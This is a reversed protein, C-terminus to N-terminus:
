GDGRRFISRGRSFTEVVEIAAIEAPAATLPNAAVVVLDALKGVELSGKETEEFNQYAADLTVARLAQRASVREAPGLIDGSRT